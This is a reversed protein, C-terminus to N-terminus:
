IAKGSPRRMWKYSHLSLAGNVDWKAGCPSAADTRVREHIHERM